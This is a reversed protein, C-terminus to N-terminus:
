LVETKGGAAALKEAASKSFKHAKINLQKPAEGVGLIKIKRNKRVLGKDALVEPNVQTNSDFRALDKLNVVEYEIRFINNFGRKPMKQTIPMQGGEFGVAKTGGSRAKQGNSGKGSTKGLGSGLGRGVRTSKRRAGRAPALDNIKM